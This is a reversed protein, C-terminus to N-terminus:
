GVPQTARTERGVRAAYAASVRRSLTRPSPWLAILAGALVILAGVWIWQVLPSVHMRFGAPPPDAEYRRVLGRLVEGMAADAAEPSLSDGANAFVKDGEEVIPRLRDIDPNVATWVDHGLGARLGVESTAEGEFFRSVPGLMPAPSPFYSKHTHVIGADRGDRELRLDAGLDIRELRGNAAAV